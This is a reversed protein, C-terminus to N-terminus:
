ANRRRQAVPDSVIIDMGYEQLEHIIDVVKTNRVDPVDEKFSLGM